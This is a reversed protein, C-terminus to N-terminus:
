PAADRVRLYRGGAELIGAHLEGRRTADPWGWASVVDGIRIELDTRRVPEADFTVWSPGSSTLLKLTWRDPPPADAPVACPEIAMVRGLAHGYMGRSAFSTAVHTCAPQGCFPVGYRAALRRALAMDLAAAWQDADLRPPAEPSTADAPTTGIMARLNDGAADSTMLSAPVATLSKADDAAGLAAYAVCWGAHDIALDVVRGLAQGDVTAVAGLESLLKLSAVPPAAGWAPAGDDARLRLTRGDYKVEVALVLREPMILAEAGRVEIAKGPEFQIGQNVVYWVPGLDVGWVLGDVEVYLRVSPSSVCVPWAATVGLITGRLDLNREPTFLANYDSGPGWGWWRDVCPRQWAHGFHKYVDDLWVLRDALPAGAADVPPWTPADRWPESASPITVQLKAPRSASAPHYNVLAAPVVKSKTASAEDPNDDDAEGPRVLIAAVRSSEVEVLLDDLKGLPAGVLDVVPTGRLTSGRLLAAIQVPRAQGAPNAPVANQALCDRGESAVALLVIALLCSSCAIRGSLVQRAWGLILYAHM